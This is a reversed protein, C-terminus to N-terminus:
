DDPRLVQAGLVRHYGQRGERNRLGRGEGSAIQDVLRTLEGLGNEDLFKEAVDPGFEISVGRKNPHRGNASTPDAWLIDCMLGSQPIAGRRQIKQIDAIKVGDKEFLGGHVVLVKNSIKTGLPLNQFVKNFLSFTTPDYKAKVEGEFGYLKNLEASEHNGRNLYICNPAAVKFALLATVCEVSFSGRDVFDGNFLYPKNVSPFGNIKFINLLDYYQGHIDGCVTIQEVPSSVTVDVINPEKDLVDKALKLLTWLYKKHLKKQDKMFDLLAMVDDMTFPTEKSIVPGNYSQEVVLAEEDCKELEDEHYIAALFDQEKKLKRLMALRENVDKNNKIGLDKVIYELEKIAEVLKSLAFCATAKRYYAKVFSKDAIKAKDSAIIAAGYNELKIHCFAANALYIASQKNDIGAIEVAQDYQGIAKNYEGKTFHANGAEKLTEAAKLQDSM